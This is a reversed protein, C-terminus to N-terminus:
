FRIKSIDVFNPNWCNWFLASLRVLIPRLGPWRLWIEAGDKNGTVSKPRSQNTAHAWVLSAAHWRAKIPHKCSTELRAARICFSATLWAQPFRPFRANKALWVPALAWAAHSYLAATCPRRMHGSLWDIERSPWTARACGVM